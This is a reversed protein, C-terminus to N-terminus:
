STGDDSTEERRAAVWEWYGSRDDDNAVEYKWSALPHEPDESWYDPAIEEDTGGIIEWIKKWTSENDDDPYLTIFVNPGFHGDYNVEVVEPMGVLDNYINVGTEDEDWGLLGRETFEDVTMEIAYTLRTVSRRM